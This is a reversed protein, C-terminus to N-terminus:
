FDIKEHGLSLAMKIEKLAQSKGQKRFETLNAALPISNGNKYELLQLLDQQQSLGLKKLGKVIEKQINKM